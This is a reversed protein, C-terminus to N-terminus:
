DGDWRDLWYRTIHKEKKEEEEVDCEWSWRYSFHKENACSSCIIEYECAMKCFLERYDWGDGDRNSYWNCPHKFLLSYQEPFSSHGHLHHTPSCNSASGFNIILAFLTGRTHTHTHIHLSVIAICLYNNIEWRSAKETSEHTNKLKKRGATAALPPTQRVLCVCVCLSCLNFFLTTTSISKICIKHRHIAFKWRWRDSTTLLFASAVVYLQHLSEIHSCLATHRAHGIEREWVKCFLQKIPLIPLLLM